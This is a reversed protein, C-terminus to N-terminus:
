TNIHISKMNTLTVRSIEPLGMSIWHPERFYGPYCQCAHFKLGKGILSYNIGASRSNMTLSIYKYRSGNGSAWWHYKDRPNICIYRMSGPIVSIEVWKDAIFWGPPNQHGRACGKGQPWTTSLLADGLRRIYMQVNAICANNPMSM